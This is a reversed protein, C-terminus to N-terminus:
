SGMESTSSQFYECWLHNRSEHHLSWCYGELGDGAQQLSEEEPCGGGGRQEHGEGPLTTYEYILRLLPYFPRSLPAPQQCTM